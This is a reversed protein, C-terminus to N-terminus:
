ARAAREGAEPDALRSEAARGERWSEFVNLTPGIYSVLVAFLVLVLAVRGFRDWRIRSARGGGQRPVVRARYRPHATGAMASAKSAQPRLGGRRFNRAAVVHRRSPLQCSARRSPLEWGGRVAWVWAWSAALRSAGAVGVAGSGGEQQVGELGPFVAEDGLEEEIRLLQNYKAVRDSRSPAGTKIQGCGTAVALDAITTDETEGSRHSM